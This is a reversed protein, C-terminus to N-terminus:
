VNKKLVTPLIYKKFKPTFPDSLFTYLIPLIIMKLRLLSHFALNKMNHSKYKQHPQLSNSM